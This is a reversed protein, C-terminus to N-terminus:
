VMGAGVIVKGDFPPDLTAQMIFAWITGVGGTTFLEHPVSTTGVPGTIPASGTQEPVFVYVHVYLSQIPPETSQTYVYVMEGGVKTKGAFPDDV